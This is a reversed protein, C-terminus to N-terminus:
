NAATQPRIPWRVGAGDILFVEGYTGEDALLQAYQGARQENQFMGEASPDHREGRLYARVRISMSTAM